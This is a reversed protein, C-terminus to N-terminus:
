TDEDPIASKRAKEGAEESVQDFGGIRGARQSHRHLTGPISRLM